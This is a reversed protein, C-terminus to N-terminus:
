VCTMIKSENCTYDLLGPTDKYDHLIAVFDHGFVMITDNTFARITEEIRSM